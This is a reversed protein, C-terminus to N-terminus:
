KESPKEKQLQLIVAKGGKGSDIFNGLFYYREPELLFSDHGKVSHVLEFACKIGNAQFANVLADQEETFYCVDSDISVILFEIGKPMRSFANELSGSGYKGALDFSQMAKVILLYSNADFRKVFNKGQHFIYSEVHHQLKYGYIYDGPLIVEKKARENITDIDVYRKGGIMRALMLGKDPRQRGYYDGNGFDPDNEIAIIQELNHLKNLSSTSAASGIIVAKEVREGFLMCFELAIYGGMSSGIVAKLKEVGLRKLVREQLRAMDEISIEPFLSGYPVGTKPNPSSPGTTGYCGGLINMCVIFNKGSDILKGNGVFGDWWGTFNEETWFACDKAFETNEGAIHASGSLAHFVLIANDGAESLKGLTEFAVSIKELRKGSSLTFEEIEIISTATKM